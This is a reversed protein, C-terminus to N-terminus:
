GGILPLAQAGINVQENFGVFLDAKPFEAQPLEDEAGQLLMKLLFGGLGGAKEADVGEGSFNGDKERGQAVGSVFVSGLGKGGGDASGAGQTLLEKEQFFFIAGGFFHLFGEFANGVRAQGNAFPYEFAAHVGDGGVFFDGGGFSFEEAGDGFNEFAWYGGDESQALEEESEALEEPAMVRFWYPIQTVPVLPVVPKLVPCLGGQLVVPSNSWRCNEM